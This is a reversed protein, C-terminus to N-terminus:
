VKGKLGRGFVVLFVGVDGKRLEKIGKSWMRIM